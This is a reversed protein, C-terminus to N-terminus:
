FPPTPGGSTRQGRLGSLHHTLKELSPDIEQAKHGRAFVDSLACRVKRCGRLVWCACRQNTCISQAVTIANEGFYFSLVNPHAVTIHTRLPAVERFPNM